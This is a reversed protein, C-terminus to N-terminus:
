FLPGLWDFLHFLDNEEALREINALVTMVTIESEPAKWGKYLDLLTQKHPVVRTQHLFLFSDALETENVLRKL